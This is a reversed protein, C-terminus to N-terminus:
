LSRRFKQNELDKKDARQFIPLREIILGVDIRYKDKTAAFRQKRDRLKKLLLESAKDMKKPQEAAAFNYQPCAALYQVPRKLQPIQSQIFKQM